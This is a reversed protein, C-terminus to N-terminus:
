RFHLEYDGTSEAMVFELCAFCDSVRVTGVSFLVSPVVVSFRGQSTFPFTWGFHFENDARLDWLKRCSIRELGSWLRMAKGAPEGDGLHGRAAGQPGDELASSSTKAAQRSLARFHKKISL